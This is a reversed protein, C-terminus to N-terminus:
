LFRNDSRKQTVEEISGQMWGSRSKEVYDFSEIYPKLDLLPTRDLVDIGRLEVINNKVGTIEVISLGIHNPRLPSRTAFIGRAVTDMFPIVSLASRSAKHLHYILYAHSFGDLDQLGEAYKELIEISGTVKNAGRPQIPMDTLETYPTRIYGIPSFEM